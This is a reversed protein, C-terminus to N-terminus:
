PTSITKGIKNQLLEALNNSEDETHFMSARVTKKRIIESVESMKNPMKNNRVMHWIHGYRKVLGILFM